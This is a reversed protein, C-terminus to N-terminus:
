FFLLVLGVPYRAKFLEIYEKYHVLKRNTTRDAILLAVSGPKDLKSQINAYRYATAKMLDQSFLGAFM